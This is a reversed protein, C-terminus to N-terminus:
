LKDQKRACYSDSWGKGHACEQQSQAFIRCASQSMDWWLYAGMLAIAAAIMSCGAWAPILIEYAEANPIM